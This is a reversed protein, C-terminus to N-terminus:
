RELGLAPGRRALPLALFGGRRWGPAGMMLARTLSWLCRLAACSNLLLCARVRWMAAAMRHMPPLAPVVVARECGGRLWTLLPALSASFTTM